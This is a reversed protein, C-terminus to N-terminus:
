RAKAAAISITDGLVQDCIELMPSIISEQSNTKLDLFLAWATLATMKDARAAILAEHLERTEPTKFEECDAIAAASLSNETAQAESLEGNQNDSLARRLVSEVIESNGQDSNSNEAM